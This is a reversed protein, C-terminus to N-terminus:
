IVGKFSNTKGGSAKDAAWEAKFGVWGRTCCESLASELTYGAKDPERRIGNIATATVAAKKSSRLSLWDSSVADSVGLSLLHSKANFAKEKNIPEHNITRPQLGVPEQQTIEPNNLIVKQTKKPRGGLRGNIRSVEALRKYELIERDCRANHWCNDDGLTFFEQLITELILGSSGLRLRRSVQQTENPIPQEEKMYFDILRRYICDEVLDLHATAVSYDGVHFQYYHM